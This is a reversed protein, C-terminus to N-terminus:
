SISQQLHEEIGGYTQAPRYQFLKTLARTKRSMHNEVDLLIESSCHVTPVSLRGKLALFAMIM